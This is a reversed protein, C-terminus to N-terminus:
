QLWGHKKLVLVADLTFAGRWWPLQPYPNPLGGDKAFADKVIQLQQYVLEEPLLPIAERWYRSFLPFHGQNEALFEPMQALVDKLVIERAVYDPSYLSYLFLPYDYFAMRDPVTCIIAFAGARDALKKPCCGLKKLMGVVSLIRRDDPNEWWPQHPYNFLEAPPHTIYGEPNLNRYAWEALPMLVSEEQCSLLDLYYLATEAGIATSHPLLLDPEIGNGFGGDPNQFALLARLAATQSREEMMYLWLNRELLPCNALVYNRIVQLDLM